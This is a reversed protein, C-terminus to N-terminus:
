LRKEAAPSVVDSLLPFIHPTMVSKRGGAGCEAARGYVSLNLKFCDLCDYRVFLLSNSGGVGRLIKGRVIEQLKM